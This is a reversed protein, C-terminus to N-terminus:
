ILATAGSPFHWTCKSEIFIAGPFAKSYLKRSSDILETLEALTRRSLLARHNPNHCYRLLDVLLAFSKGGGAAGGYLVEKEPAALFDTQPGENPLFVVEANDKVSEKVSKPLADLFDETVAGGKKNVSDIHRLDEKLKKAAYKEKAAKEALKRAKLEKARLKRRAEIRAKQEMSFHYARAM